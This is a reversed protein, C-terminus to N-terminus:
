KLSNLIGNDLDDINYLTDLVNFTENLPLKANNWFALIVHVDENGEVLLKYTYKEDAM